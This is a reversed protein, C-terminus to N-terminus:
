TTLRADHNVRAAAAAAGFRRLFAVQADSQICRPNIGRIIEFAQRASHGNWILVCALMTGTRGLGARCHLTVVEGAEVWAAIRACLEVAAGIEPVDMDAIPFHLSLIGFSTLVEEDLMRSEELSVLVTVGLRWIGDLDYELSNVIGPRAMGGLQGAMAWYFGRPGATRLRTLPPIIPAIGAPSPSANAQPPPALCGGTRVFIKALTSDPSGFFEQTPQRAAIRGGALLLTMGGARLAHRQNHTVLLIARRQAELRLADILQLAALEDLGATPEDALLVRPDCILARALALSRQRDISLAIAEEDLWEALHGLGAFALRERVVRTQEMRELEARNPLASVLNERVSDLYFRADQMVLSPRRAGDYTVEGWTTLSPHSENLGALTRLLASKGSGAPGVLVTMGHSPLAFSVDHLVVRDGFSVGFDRVRLAAKSM